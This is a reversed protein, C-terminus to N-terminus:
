RKKFFFILTPRNENLLDGSTVTSGDSLRLTFPIISDGVQNGVPPLSDTILAVAPESSTTFDAIPPKPSQNGIWPQSLALWALLLVMALSGFAISARRFILVRGGLGALLAFHPLPWRRQAPVDPAIQKARAIFRTLSVESSSNHLGQRLERLQVTLDLLPELWDADDGYSALLTDRSEGSRLREVAEHLINARMSESRNDM